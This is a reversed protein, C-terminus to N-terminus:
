RVMTLLDFPGQWRPQFVYVARFFLANAKSIIKDRFRWSYLMGSIAADFSDSIITRLARCAAALSNVSPADFHTGAFDPYGTSFALNLGDFRM